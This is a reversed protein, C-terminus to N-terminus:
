IHTLYAAPAQVAHLLLLDQRRVVRHPLHDSHALDLALGGGRERQQGRPARAGRAARGPHDNILTAAGVTTRWLLAAPTARATTAQLHQQGGVVDAELNAAGAEVRGHRPGSRVRNYQM